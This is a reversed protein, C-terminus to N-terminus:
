KKEHFTKTRIVKKNGITDTDKKPTKPPLMMGMTIKNEVTDTVVSVEGLTQSDNKCSFLSSGMVVFLTLLFTKRFSMPKHFVYEPIQVNFSSLQATNLRGCVRKGKNTILYQEIELAEMESFDVVSKACVECFRGREVSKMSNWDENCPKSISIKYKTNM